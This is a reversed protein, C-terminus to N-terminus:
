GFLNATAEVAPEAKVSPQASYLRAYFGNAKLLEAHTGSETIRGKDLVLICDARRVTSLRHAIVLITRTGVLDQIANQIEAETETDVSATAEDLILISSNRLVARAIALRQKQGGSLRVGREGVMTQYAEPMTMIFDHIHAIKASRIIEEHTAQDMGYLSIRKWQVM